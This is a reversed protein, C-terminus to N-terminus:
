KQKEYKRKLGLLEIVKPLNTLVWLRFSTAAQEKEEAPGVHALINRDHNPGRLYEDGFKGGIAYVNVGSGKLRDLIAKDGKKTAGKCILISPGMEFKRSMKKVSGAEVLCAESSNRLQPEWLVSLKENFMGEVIRAYDMAWGTIEGQFVSADGLHVDHARELAVLKRQLDSNLLDWAGRGMAAAIREGLPTPPSLLLKVVEASTKRGSDSLTSQGSLAQLQAIAYKMNELEAAVLLEAVVAFTRKIRDGWGLASLREKLDCITKWEGFPSLCNVPVTEDEEPWKHHVTIEMAETVMFYCFVFGATEIFGDQCLRMACGVYKEPRRSSAHGWDYKDDELIAALVYVSSAEANADIEEGPIPAPFGLCRALDELSSFRRAAGDWMRSELLRKVRQLGENFVNETPNWKDEFRWRFVQFFVNDSIPRQRLRLKRFLSEMELTFPENSSNESYAGVLLSIGDGMAEAVSEVDDCRESLKLLSERISTTLVFGMNIAAILLDSPNKSGVWMCFQMQSVAVFDASDGFIEPIRYFPPIKRFLDAAMEELLVAKDQAMDPDLLVSVENGKSDCAIMDKQKVHEAVDAGFIALGGARRNWEAIQAGWRPLAANSNEIGSCNLSSAIAPVCSVWSQQFLKVLATWQNFLLVRIENSVQPPPLAVRKVPLAKELDTLHKEFGDILDFGLEANLGKFRVIAAVSIQRPPLLNYGSRALTEVRAAEEAGEARFADVVAQTQVSSSTLPEEITRFEKTWKSNASEIAGILEGYQDMADWVASLRDLKEKNSFLGELAKEFSRGKLLFDQEIPNRAALFCEVYKPIAFANNLKEVQDKFEASPYLSIIKKSM